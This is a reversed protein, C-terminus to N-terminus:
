ELDELRFVPGDKCALKWGRRTHLACVGCDALGACPMPALILAQGVPQFDILPNLGLREKLNPLEELALDVALFDAWALGEGLAALPSAELESPLPPLRADSFLSVAIQQRLAIKALPLLRSVTGGLAALAVRRAEAPLSFGNGLPGRLELQTGPEWNGPVPAAAVFGAEHETMLFLPAGIVSDSSSALTYCGPPPVAQPPCAILASVQGSVESTIERVQGTHQRMASHKLM